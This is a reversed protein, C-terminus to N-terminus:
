VVIIYLLPVILIIAMSLLVKKNTENKEGKGIEFFVIIYILLIIISLAKFFNM